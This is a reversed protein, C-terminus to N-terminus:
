TVDGGEGLVRVLDWVGKAKEAFRADCTVLDCGMEMALALYICDKLPHGLDLAMKAANLLTKSSHLVLRVREESLKAEFDNLMLRIGAQQSKDMNGKRVLAANVEVAFLDPATLEGLHKNLLDIAADSSTEPFYWKVAVSADLVIVL